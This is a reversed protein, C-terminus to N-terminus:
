RMDEMPRLNMATDASLKEIKTIVMRPDTKYRVEFTMSVKDGIAFEDLKVDPIANPMDMIMEKMGTKEGAKNVFEPIEEHHVQVYLTGRGPLGTIVGRTTYTYEPATLPRLFTMRGESLPPPPPTRNCGALAVAALVSVAILRNM